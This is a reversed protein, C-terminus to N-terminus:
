VKMARHTHMCRYMHTSRATHTHTHTHTHIHTCTYPTSCLAHLPQFSAEDIIGRSGVQVTWLQCKHGATKVAERVDHYKVQKRMSADAFNEDFCVTLEILYVTKTKENCMVIDARETTSCIHIPFTYNISKLTPWWKTTLLM